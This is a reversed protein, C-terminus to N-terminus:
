YTGEGFGGKAWDILQKACRRQGPLDISTIRGVRSTRYWYTVEPIHECKCKTSSILLAIQLDSAYIFRPDFGPSEAYAKKTFFRQHSARWWRKNVLADWMSTNVPLPGSWGVKGTSCVFKTWAFGLKPDKTFRPVVMSLSSPSLRDDSDLVTVVPGKAYELGAKTAGAVGVHKKLSIISVNKNASVVSAQDVTDDISADDVIVVDWNKYTQSFVSRLAESIYGATNYAPILVTCHLNM